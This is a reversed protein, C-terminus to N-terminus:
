ARHPDEFRAEVLADLLRVGFGTPGRPGLPSPAGREEVGAIDLHAWPGDGAFERLFAAAHCADPLFKQPWGASGDRVPTGCQKIDAIDSELAARHGEGIPMPWLREGTAEGAAALAAMLPADNGFLGARQHGLATVIAGTLTALDIIAEPRFATRAYHLADALVMRGEADTDITEVTRGSLTTIVDGPRWANGGVANEAIAIVAAAPAPSDRLALAMIAGAAAAAGAMDARMAEMGGAPKISIGGTDFVIGKGVFVVPATSHRGRWRLVALRPGEQAAQGVALLAGFGAKALRKPGLVDVAIGFEDLAELRRAFEKPTLINAPLAVLDRAFFTARLVAEEREWAAALAKPEDGLLEIRRLAPAPGPAGPPTWARLVLGAALAAGMEPSLGRADIAVRPAALLCTGARGGAERAENPGGPAAIGSLVAPLPLWCRIAKAEGPRFGGAEAAAGYGAPVAGGAPVPLLLPHEGEPEGARCQVAIPLSFGDSM